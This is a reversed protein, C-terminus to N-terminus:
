SIRGLPLHTSHSDYRHLQFSLRPIRSFQGISGGGEIDQRLELMAKQYAPDANTCLRPADNVMAFTTRGEIPFEFSGESGLQPLVRFGTKLITQTTYEAGFCLMKEIPCTDALSVATVLLLRAIGNRGYEPNVWLGCLEGLGGDKWQDYMALFDTDLSQLCRLMPLPYLKNHVQVRIAGIMDNHQNSAMVIFSNQDNRWEASKKFASSVGIKFLVQQHRILYKDTLAPEDVARFSRLHLEKLKKM